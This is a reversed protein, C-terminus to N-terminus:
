LEITRARDNSADVQLNTSLRACYEKRPAQRSFEFHLSAETVIKMAEQPQSVRQPYSGTFFTFDSDFCRISSFSPALVGFVLDYLFRRVKEGCAFSPPLHFTM